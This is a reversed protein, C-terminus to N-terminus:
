RFSRSRRSHWSTAMRARAQVQRVLDEPMQATLRALRHAEQPSRLATEMESVLRLQHAIDDGGSGRLVLRPADPMPRPMPFRPSARVPGAPVHTVGFLTERRPAVMRAPRLPAFLTARAAEEDEEFVEREQGEEEERSQGQYTNAESAFSAAYPQPVVPRQRFPRPHPLPTSHLGGGPQDNLSPLVLPATRGAPRTTTVELPEWSSDVEPRGSETVAAAPSRAAAPGPVGESRASSGGRSVKAPAECPRSRTSLGSPTWEAKWEEGGVTQGAIRAIRRLLARAHEAAAEGHVGEAVRRLQTAWVLRAHSLTAVFIVGATGSRSASAEVVTRHLLMNEDNTAVLRPSRLTADLSWWGQQAACCAWAHTRDYVICRRLQPDFPHGERLLAALFEGSAAMTFWWPRRLEVAIGMPLTGDDVAMDSTVWESGHGHRRGLIEMTNVWLTRDYAEEGVVNNVAYMRCLDSGNPARQYFSFRPADGAARAAPEEAREERAHDM